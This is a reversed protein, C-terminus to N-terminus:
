HRLVVQVQPVFWTLYSIKKTGNGPRLVISTRAPLDQPRQDFQWNYTPFRLTIQAFLENASPNIILGSTNYLITDDAAFLALTIKSYM